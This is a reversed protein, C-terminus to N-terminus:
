CYVIKAGPLALQKGPADTSTSRSPRPIYVLQPIRIRPKGRLRVHLLMHSHRVCGLCCGVQCIFCVNKSTWSNVMHYAEGHLSSTRAGCNRGDIAKQLYKEDGKHFAVIGRWGDAILGHKGGLSKLALCCQM